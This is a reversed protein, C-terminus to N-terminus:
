TPTADSVRHATWLPTAFAVRPATIDPAVFTKFASDVSAPAGGPYPADSARRWSYFSSGNPTTNETTAVLANGEGAGVQAPQTLDVDV